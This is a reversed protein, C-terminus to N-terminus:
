MLNRVQEIANIIYHYVQVQAPCDTIWDNKDLAGVTACGSMKALIDNTLKDLAGAYNGEEIMTITAAIKNTLANAMNPNKFNTPALNNIANVAACLENIVASSSTTATITVNSPYSTLLGDSVTLSVVYQGALDAYFSPQATTDGNLVTSSGLPKNVFSWQYTLPDGNADNSARGDLQATSPAVVIQNGGANAVPRVNEFSIIVTDSTKAGFPDTVTLSLEYQGYVDAIFTPKAIAPNSLVAISGGPKSIFSWLFTIADGDPDYSTSGDLQVKSGILVVSQDPGAAAVPATNMTSIKVTDPQSSSGAADTVVLEVVYDGMLDATFIPTVTDAGTLAATSGTPVQKLTWAYTLPYNADPDSSGSGDLTVVSGPHVTQDIGAHALPPKNSSDLYRALAFDGPSVTRGALVIKGDAQLATSWIQVDKGDFDTTVKGGNGFSADLSGDPNYRAQAIDMTGVSLGNYGSVIIKGDAQLVVAEGINAAHEIDTAVKGGSGFSTDFTGDPNYRVMCFDYSYSGPVACSGAALIKGDPQIVVSNASDYYGAIDTIVKGGSGFSTDLTGDLNYRALAFNPTFINSYPVTIGAAVIKGDPQVVVSYARDDPRGFDTTVVGSSGFSSDLSGDTNYRVLGFNWNMSSPDQSVDIHGAVVIKGDAQLAASHVQKFGTIYTRVVGGVGFSADLSGDPNYRALACGSSAQGSVMIKGDTQIFIARGLISSDLLYTIVKGGSGFSTDLTGDPNYRALAFGASNDGGAVIKGDAQIAISWATDYGVGFDTTVKGGIGFTPDLDGDAANLRSCLMVVQALGLLM